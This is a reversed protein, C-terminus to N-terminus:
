EFFIWHLLGSGFMLVIGAIIISAIVKAAMDGQGSGQQNKEAIVAPEM